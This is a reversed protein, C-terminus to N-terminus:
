QTSSKAGLLSARGFIYGALTGLLGISADLESGKPQPFLTLILIAFIILALSIVFAIDHVRPREEMKFVFTIAIVTLLVVTFAVIAIVYLFFSRQSQLDGNCGYDLAKLQQFTKGEEAKKVDYSFEDLLSGANNEPKNNNDM